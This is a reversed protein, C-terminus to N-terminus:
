SSVGESRVRELRRLPTFKFECFYRNSGEGFELGVLVIGLDLDLDLDLGHCGQGLEQSVDHHQLDGLLWIV